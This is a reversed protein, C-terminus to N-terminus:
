FHLRQVLLSIATAGRTFSFGKFPRLILDPAAFGVQRKVFVSKGTNFFDVNADPDPDDRTGYYYGYTGEQFHTVYGGSVSLGVFDTSASLIQGVNSFWDVVFSFPVLEWAVALPNVFGLQNALFLNPNSVSVRCGIHVTTSTKTDFRQYNHGFDVPVFEQFSRSGSGRVRRSGFDSDYLTKFGKGVDQVLPVWGFHLELWKQSLDKTSRMIKRTKTLDGASGVLGVSNLFGRADGRKLSAVSRILRSAVNAIMDLSKRGEALNALFQSQDGVASVLAGYAKSYCLDYSDPPYIGPGYNSSGPFPENSGTRMGSYYQYPLPELFPPAQVEWTRNWIRLFGTEGVSRTM